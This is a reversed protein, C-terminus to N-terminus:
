HKLAFNLVGDIERKLEEISPVIRHNPWLPAEKQGASLLNIKMTSVSVPLGTNTLYFTYPNAFTGGNTGSVPSGMVEGRLGETFWATFNASASMSLENVLLDCSGSYVLGLKNKLIPTNMVTDVTGYPKNYFDLEKSIAGNPYVRKAARVFRKRELKSLQSFRDYPSRKYIYNAKYVTNNPVLFSMLYEQLVIYGGTNNRLDIILKDIQKEAIEMFVKDLKKKFGKVIRPSFSAIKLIGVGERREFSIAIPEGKFFEGQRTKSIRPNRVMSTVTDLGDYWTISNWKNPHNLNMLAGTVHPLMLHFASDALSEIPAFQPAEKLYTTLLFSNVSLLRVGSPIKNEWAKVVLVQGNQEMLRLPLYHRSFSHYSLLDGVSVFTHSDKLFQLFRNLEGVFSLLTLDKSCRNVLRLYLSDLTEKNVSRYLDPHAQQINSYLEKVDELLASSCIKETVPNTFLRMVFPKCQGSVWGAYLVLLLGLCAKM